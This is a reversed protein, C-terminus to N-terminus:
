WFKELGLMNVPKVLCVWAALKAVMFVWNYTSSLWGEIAGARM